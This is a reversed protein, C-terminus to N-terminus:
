NGAHSAAGKRKKIREASPSRYSLLMFGLVSLSICLIPPVYWWYAGNIIGNRFFAYHLTDGWSKHEIVGLGLFSLSAETLMANGVSLVARVFVIDGLNPLIHRLMIYVPSAGMTREIRVYPLERLQKVRARIIRATSTWATICIALIINWISADLFAVLIITLPLSPLAMAVNILQSIVRDTGGGLYGSLVGLATGVVTVVLASVVGILLSIRTGYILESLIDQGIDNTGLLHEPSPKLYPIGMKYPDYPALVPALLAVILFFSLIFIGLLFRPDAKRRM